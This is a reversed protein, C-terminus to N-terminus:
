DPFVDCLPPDVYWRWASRDLTTLSLYSEVLPVLLFFFLRQQLMMKDRSHPGLLAACPSSPRSLFNLVNLNIRAEEYQAKNKRSLRCARVIAFRM